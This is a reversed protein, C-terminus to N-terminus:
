DLCINKSKARTMSPISNQMTIGTGMKLMGIGIT